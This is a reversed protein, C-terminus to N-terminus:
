NRVLGRCVDHAHAAPYPCEHQDADPDLEQGPDGGQKNDRYIAGAPKEGYLTLNHVENMGAETAAQGERGKEQQVQAGSLPDTAGTYPDPQGAEHEGGGAAHQGGGMGSAPHPQEEHQHSRHHRKETVEHRESIGDVPHM